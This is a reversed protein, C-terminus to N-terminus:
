RVDATTKRKAEMVEPVVSMLIMLQKVVLDPLQYWETLRLPQVLGALIASYIEFGEGFEM